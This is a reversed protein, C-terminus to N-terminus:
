ILSLSLPKPNPASLNLPTRDKKWNSDAFQKFDHGGRVSTQSILCGREQPKTQDILDLCTNVMVRGEHDKM